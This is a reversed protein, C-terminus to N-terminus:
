FFATARLTCTDVCTLSLIYTEINRAGAIPSNDVALDPAVVAYSVKWVWEYEDAKPPIKKPPVLEKGSEGGAELETQDGPAKETKEESESFNDFELPKAIDGL